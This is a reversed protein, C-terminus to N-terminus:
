DWSARYLDLVRKIHAPLASTTIYEIQVSNTGPAKPSHVSADNKIYYTILDFVALKLEEPLEEYGANYTVTYGNILTPWDTGNVTVIGQGEVDFVYDTFEVLETSTQGYDESYEVSSISLVPYEELYIASGFGKSFVEVKADDVYDVFTRRCYTKILASIRPILSDIATDSNTSAIGAYAKYEAKTVLDLGAM